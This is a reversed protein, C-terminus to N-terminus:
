PETAFKAHATTVDAEAMRTLCRNLCITSKGPNRVLPRRCGHTVPAAHLLGLGVTWAETLARESAVLSRGILTQGSYRDVHNDDHAVAVISRKGGGSCYFRFNTAAQNDAPPDLTPGPISRQFGEQMERRHQFALARTLVDALRLLQTLAALILGPVGSHRAKRQCTPRRREGRL